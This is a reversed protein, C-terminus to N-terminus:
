NRRRPQGLIVEADVDPEARQIRVGDWLLLVHEAGSGIVGTRGLPLESM